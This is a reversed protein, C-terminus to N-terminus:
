ETGLQNFRRQHGRVYQHSTWVVNTISNVFFKIRYKESLMTSKNCHSNGDEGFISNSVFEIKALATSPIWKLVINGKLEKGLSAFNSNDIYNITLLEQGTNVALIDSGFTSSNNFTVTSPGTGNSDLVAETTQFNCSM